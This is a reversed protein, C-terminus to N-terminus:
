CRPCRSRRIKSSSSSASAPQMERIFRRLGERDIAAAADTKDIKVQKMEALGGSIQASEARIRSTIERLTRLHTQLEKATEARQGERTLMKSSQIAQFRETAKMVVAVAGTLSETLVDSKAGPKLRELLNQHKFNM